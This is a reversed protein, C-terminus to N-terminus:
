PAVLPALLRRLRRDPPTASLAAARVQPREPILVAPDLGLWRRSAAVADPVGRRPVRNVVLSPPPGSWAAAIAAARVIGVASADAVLVADDARKIIPDDPPPLGRDIVVREYRETAADLVDDISSPRLEPSSPRHSGVLVDLKGVRRLEVGDIRGSARVEDAADTLDPRPAVGLRIALAPADLDLDVLLTRQTGAAVWAIALAVETCGPAGRGGVVAMTKGVAPRDTTPGDPAVFRAAAVIATVPADDPLTEEVGADAFMRAAPRDGAAYVGVIGLGARRWAALQAPTVWAVEAGVVVVDIQDSREEIEWPQYARLVVRATASERAYAVLGPEWARASLVTAIRVTM